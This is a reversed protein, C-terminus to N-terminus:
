DMFDHHRNIISLHLKLDEESFRRKIVVAPNGAVVSYPDVDKTVVAGAAVIAGTGIIVNSLVIAGYGIWVDNEIVIKYMDGRPSKAMVLGPINSMHADKSVFACCAAIMVDDGIEIDSQFSCYRGIGVRNGIRTHKNKSFFYCSGQVSVDKGYKVWPYKVRFIFINRLEKYAKKAFIM